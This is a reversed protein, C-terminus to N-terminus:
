PVMNVVLMVLKLVGISMRLTLQIKENPSLTSSLFGYGSSVDGNGKEDGRYTYKFPVQINVNPSLTATKLVMDLVLMVIIPIVIRNISLTTKRLFIGVVRTM